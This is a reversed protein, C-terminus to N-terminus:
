QNEVSLRSLFAKVARERASDAAAASGLGGFPGAANFEPDNALRLKDVVRLALDRSTLIQIQNQVSAADTPLSSLVSSADAVNNKRQELMVVASASYLTPLLVLVLATLAMCLGSVGLILQWRRRILALLDVFDFGRDKGYAIRGAPLSLSEFTQVTAM